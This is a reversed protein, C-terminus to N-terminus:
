EILHLSLVLEENLSGTLEDCIWHKQTTEQMECVTAGLEVVGHLDEVGEVDYVNPELEGILLELSEGGVKIVMEEELPYEKDELAVM